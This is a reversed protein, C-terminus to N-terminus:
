LSRSEHTFRSYPRSNPNVTRLLEILAAQISRLERLEQAAAILPDHFDNAVTLQTALAELVKANWDRDECSTSVKLYAPLTPEPICVTEIAQPAIDENGGTDDLAAQPEPTPRGADTM